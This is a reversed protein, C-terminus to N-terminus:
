PAVPTQRLNGFSPMQQAGSPDQALEADILSGIQDWVRPDSEIEIHARTFHRAFWPYERCALPHAKYTMQYNGIIKTQTPDAARIAPFGHLLGHTQYFNVASVVNSPIVSDQQGPKPIGDIQITLLVPIQEKGLERALEVTESAGWSHGYLIIRARQKELDTLFGDHNTDLLTLIQRLAMAGQHNSFVEAHVDANQERIHNAFRIEEHKRDDRKVFGGVFGIVIFEPTRARLAIGATRTNASRPLVEGPTEGTAITTIAASSDAIAPVPHAQGYVTSFTMLLLVSLWGIRANIASSRRRAALAEGGQGDLQEGTAEKGPRNVPRGGRPHNRATCNTTWDWGDAALLKSAELCPTSAWFESFEAARLRSDSARGQKKPRNHIAIKM